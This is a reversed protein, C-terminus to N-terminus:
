PSCTYVSNTGGFGDPATDPDTPDPIWQSGDVIFKYQYTGVAFGHSGTWAGDVGLTLAVAGHQPDGAWMVFDGTLWVSQSTGHGDLRFAHTCAPGADPSADPGAMAGDGAPHADDAPAADPHQKAKGYGPPQCAALVCLVLATRM